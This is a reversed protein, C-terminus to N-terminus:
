AIRSRDYAASGFGLILMGITPFIIMLFISWVASKGFATGIRFAVLIWLVVNVVPVLLLLFLWPNFGAIRFEVYANYFPVISAWGREGAKTFVKWLAIITLIGIVLSLLIVPLSLLAQAASDNDYSTM